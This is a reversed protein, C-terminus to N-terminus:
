AAGNGFKVAFRRSAKQRRSSSNTLALFGGTSGPKSDQTTGCFEGEEFAHLSCMVQVIGGKIQTSDRFGIYSISHRRALGPGGDNHRPLFLASIILICGNNGTGTIVVM